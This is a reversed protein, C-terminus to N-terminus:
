LYKKLWAKADIEDDFMKVPYPQSKLRFFLNALMKGLASKSVMAIAKAIKPLEEAAYSRVELTTETSHTVEILMCVKEPGLHRRLAAMTEQTQELTQPPVKKSISYLIGSEDFWLTSTPLEIIKANEPITLM